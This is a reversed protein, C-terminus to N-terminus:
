PDAVVFGDGDWRHVATLRGTPCCWPDDAELVVWTSVLEGAVIDIALLELRRAGPPAEPVPVRGLAHVGAADATMIRGVPVPRNGASCDLVLAAEDLGDGTLDGYAREPRLSVSYSGPAGAAGSRVSGDTLAYGGAPPDPVVTGCAGAAFTFNAFDVDEVPTCGGLVVVVLLAVLGAPVARCARRARCHM